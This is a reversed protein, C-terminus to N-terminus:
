QAEKNELMMESVRKVYFKPSGIGVLAKEPTDIDFAEKLDSLNVSWANFVDGSYKSYCEWCIRQASVSAKGGRLGSSTMGPNDSDQNYNDDALNVYEEPNEVSLSELWEGDLWDIDVASFLQTEQIISQIKCLKEFDDENIEVSLLNPGDNSRESDSSEVDLLFKISRM